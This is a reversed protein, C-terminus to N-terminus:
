TKRVTEVPRVPINKQRLSEKIEEVSFNRELRTSYLMSSVIAASAATKHFVEQVHACEGAGGSAIIPVTVANSVMEMIAIDYGSAMGDCDISNVVIEGAGLDEARKVWQVADMGTAVRAGDIMVEYGSPIEKTPPVKKVQTSLVICQAGFAKSGETIIQPNRVAMSDISIKEAGAELVEYMDQITKIGGGVTFPVFVTESVSKVVEIDIKRKEASATIDFFIIEDIGDNYLKKMVEDVAAIHINNQFQVAKTVQGHLVDLCAIIRNTLM